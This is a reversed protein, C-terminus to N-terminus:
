PAATIAARVREALDKMNDVQQSKLFGYLIRPGTGVYSTYRVQCRTPGLPTILWEGHVADMDGDIRQWRMAGGGGPHREVINQQRYRLAGIITTLEYRLKVSTPTRELETRSTIERFIKSSNSGDWVFDLLRDASVDITFTAIVGPIGDADEVATVTAPTAIIWLALTLM